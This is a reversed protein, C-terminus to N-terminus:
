CRARARGHRMGPGASRMSARRIPEAHRWASTYRGRSCGARDASASRCADFGTMSDNKLHSALEAVATEDLYVVSQGQETGTGDTPVTSGAVDSSRVGRLSVALRGLYGSDLGQDTLVYPAVSRVASRAAFPDLLKRSRVSGIVGNLFARQNRVRQYGGDPFPYRARVYALAADGRLAITGKEFRHGLNSFAVRNDVQVGGLADTLGVFGGFSVIAVHDLRVGLLKEVVQVTLPVGGFALASNIKGRGHGPIDVWSDRMISIVFMQKRDASIHVLLM